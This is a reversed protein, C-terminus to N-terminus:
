GAREEEGTVRIHSGAVSADLPRDMQQLWLELTLLLWIPQGWDRRGSLHEKLLTQVPERHLYLYIKAQPTELLDLLPSRWRGRFWAGLPVGFGAKSRRRIPGPLLDRFARRLIWKSVGGRLKFQDPLRFAWEVLATDLFPSRTELGHAMSCRDMKVNLDNPLYEQFNWTLLDRLTGRSSAGPAAAPRDWEGGKRLFRGSDPLYATARWLRRHFPEQALDLFKALRGPLSRVHFSSAPGTLVRGGRVLWGPPREALLAAAFRDYGAFLEDGGDGNL